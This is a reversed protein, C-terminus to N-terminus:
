VLKKLDAESKITIVHSTPSKRAYIKCGKVWTFEFYKEKALTKAKNLLLKDELTLHDNIFIRNVGPLKLDTPIITFNKAAAVFDEKQYRNHVSVIITKNVKDHRMPIRAVYNINEKPITCKIHDGLKAFIQFLNESQTVPVGKIDINNMRSRREGDRVLSELKDMRQQLM